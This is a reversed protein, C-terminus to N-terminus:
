IHMPAKRLNILRKYFFDLARAYNKKDLFVLGIANQSYAIQPENDLYEKILLGEFHYKLATEYDKYEYQVFGLNSLTFAIGASDNM